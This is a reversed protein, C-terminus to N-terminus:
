CVASSKFFIVRSGKRLHGSAEHVKALAVRVVKDLLPHVTHLVRPMIQAAQQARRPAFVDLRDMQIHRLTVILAQLLEDTGRGPVVLGHEILDRDLGVRQQAIDGLGSQEQIFRTEEFFAVSRDADLPLPAPARALDLVALDGDKGAQPAARVPRQGIKTQIQRLGPRHIFRTARPGLHRHLLALIPGLPLQRQLHDLVGPLQPQAVPPHAHVAEVAAVGPQEIFEFLESLV